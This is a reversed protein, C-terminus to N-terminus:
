IFWKTNFELEKNGLTEVFLLGALFGLVNVFLDNGEQRISRYKQTTFFDNCSLQM